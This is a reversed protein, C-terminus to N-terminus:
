ILGAKNISRFLLGANLFYAQYLYHNVWQEKHGSMRDSMM